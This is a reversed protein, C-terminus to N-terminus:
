IWIRLFIFTRFYSVPVPQAAMLPYYLCFSILLVVVYGWVFVKGYLDFKTRYLNAATILCMWPVAPLMYYFFGQRNSFIWFIFSFLYGAVLFIEEKTRFFVARYFSVVFFVLFSWWFVPNGMAIIGRCIGSTDNYYYWIPRLMLPWKWWPAIYNHTWGGKYQFKLTNVIDGALADPTGGTFFYFVYTSVYALCMIVICVSMHKFFHQRHFLALALVMLPVVFVGSWKCACGLGAFLAAFYFFKARFENESVALWLFFSALLMFFAVFIDLTAIRSQAFHLFDFSLFLASLVAALYNRFLYFAMLFLVPIMLSGLICSGLRWKQFEDVSFFSDAAMLIKGLPPHVWNPDKELDVYSKAAPGYYVEDFYLERPQELFVFRLLFAIVTLLIVTVTNRVTMLEPLGSENVKKRPPM